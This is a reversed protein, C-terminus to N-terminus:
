KRTLLQLMYLFLNIFDLYLDVAALIYEDAGMYMKCLRHTDYIILLCFVIAGFLSYVYSPGGFLPLFAGWIMLVFLCAFLGVGMFNWNIKSQITFITLGIFLACTIAFAQVVIDGYGAEYYMACIYGITISQMVTFLYLLGMNLPYSKRNCFLAILVIITGFLCVYFPTFNDLTWNRIGDVYMFMTCIFVTLMLQTSLIGYVKRIFGKRVMDMAQSDYEDYPSYGGEMANVEEDTMGPKCNDDGALPAYETM